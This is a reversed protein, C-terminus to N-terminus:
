TQTEAKGGSMHAVNRKMLLLQALVVLTMSALFVFTGIVNSAIIASGPGVLMLVCTGVAEAVAIRAISVGSDPPTEQPLATPSPSAPSPDSM